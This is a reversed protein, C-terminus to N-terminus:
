GRAPSSRDAFSASRSRWIFSAAARRSKSSAARRRSMMRPMCYVRMDDGAQGPIEWLLIGRIEGRSKECEDHERICSDKVNTMNAFAFM